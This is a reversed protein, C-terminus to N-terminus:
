PRHQGAPPVSGSEPKIALPSFEDFAFTREREPELLYEILAM